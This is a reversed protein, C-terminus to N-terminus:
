STLQVCAPTFTYCTRISGDQRCRFCSTLTYILVRIQISMVPEYYLCETASTATCTRGCLCPQRTTVWATPRCCRSAACRIVNQIVQRRHDRRCAKLPQQRAELVCCIPCRKVCWFGQLRKRTALVNLDEYVFATSVICATSSQMALVM